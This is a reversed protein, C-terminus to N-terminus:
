VLETGAWLQEVEFPTCKLEAAAAAIGQQIRNYLEWSSIRSISTVCHTLELIDKRRAFKRRIGRWLGRDVPPHLVSRLKPRGGDGVYSYTKLYVNLLKAAWGYYGNLRPQRKMLKLVSSRHWGEFEQRAIPGRDDDLVQDFIGRRMLPYLDVRSKVPAGSRFASLATWEAYSRLIDRRTDTM